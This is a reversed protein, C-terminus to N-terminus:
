SMVANHWILAMIASIPLLQFPPMRYTDMLGKIQTLTNSNLMYVSAFLHLRHRSKNENM